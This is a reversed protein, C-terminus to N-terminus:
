NEDQTKPRRQALSKRLLDKMELSTRLQARIEDSAAFLDGPFRSFAMIQDYIQQQQRTNLGLGAIYQLRLNLDENREAHVLWPALDSARGVYTALLDAASGFRVSRLSEVALAHDGRDLRRQMRDVDITGTGTQGLLVLDYGIGNDWITGQPFVDFFTAIESKVVDPSSEYLPVWQAVVGGPRLHRILSQFYEKTYLAASGKVWPHIPDTTIIDFKENTTLVYHRADDYVLHVRPDRVVNNNYDGFYRSILAPVLPEIEAVVIRDIEPYPVFSGATVGSGLGVVLVSRPDRHVLAPLHGLMLQLRMDMQENSAEIKGSVHFNLSGSPLTTVAVSANM